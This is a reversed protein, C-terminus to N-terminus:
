DRLLSKPGRLGAPHDMQPKAEVEGGTHIKSVEKGQWSFDGVATPCVGVGVVVVVMVVVMMMM